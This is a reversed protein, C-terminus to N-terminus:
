KRVLTPLYARHMRRPLQDWLAPDEGGLRWFIIGRLGEEAALQARAAVSDANAFVVVHGDDNYSFWPEQVKGRDDEEWWQLEAEHTRRLAEAQEWVLAEGTMDELALPTPPALSNSEEWWDYGYLHVGLVINEAATQTKAYAIVRQMWHVPAIPGPPDGGVCGTRWCWGYTMIRLEDATAALARYDQAGPGDWGTADFTKAQVTITLWKGRAHLDSALAQVWASFLDKDESLLGEYDLDIGDYQYRMVEDVIAQRHAAALVEDNLIAHIRDGNYQNSITPFVRVGAYRAEALLDADRAGKLPALSGDQRVGYWFPSLADLWDSHARFSARAIEGDWSTPMWASIQLRAPAPPPSSFLPAAAAPHFGVGLIASVLFLPLAWSSLGLRHRPNM